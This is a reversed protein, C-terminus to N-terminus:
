QRCNPGALPFAPPAAEKKARDCRNELRQRSSANAGDRQMSRGQALAKLGDGVIAKLGDGVIAHGCRGIM